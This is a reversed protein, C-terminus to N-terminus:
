SSSVLPLRVVRVTSGINLSKAGIPVKILGNARAFAVFDSSGGWKLPEAVLHGAQDTKLVAPLYSERDASGKVSRELIAFQEELNPERAGQMALLATRAFLNFTVSVSVPNGPLGFILTGNPLRAFVTPKGPRLAVREFFIEAKLEKLATKTFDYVGMSVGGSAVIVNSSNSAREIQERLVEIDDGALPLREVIGGAQTAYASLSYTNSDRIQDQGPKKSVEVLESGTALVAIRPRSGVKVNSYGFSALVATMAANIQEGVRLVTEGAKIESGRPVISRGTEVAQLIEVVGSGDVERTLEVQQVSDAGRPVPAGTMIRVAEGASMENHWGRGAASEGVIHLRSPADPTADKIEAARIAYGDMQARDFPPLDSDAIIDEALYRGLANSLPVAEPELPRTHGRVIQIAEAVSIMRLWKSPARADRGCTDCAETIAP